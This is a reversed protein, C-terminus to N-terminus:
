GRWKLLHFAAATYVIFEIHIIDLIFSQVKPGESAQRM